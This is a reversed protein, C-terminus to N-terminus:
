QDKGGTCSANCTHAVWNLGVWIKSGKEKKDKAQDEVELLCMEESSKYWEHEDKVGLKWRKKREEGKRGGREGEGRM